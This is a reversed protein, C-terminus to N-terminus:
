RNSRLWGSRGGLAAGDAAYRQAYVGYGSGDQRYSEWAVVFQGDRAMAVTPQEQNAFTYTNVRFEEGLRTGDGAYRQGYIGWSSGDQNESMWTVVFNGTADMAIAPLMQEGGTYTNVQSEGGLPTGDPAYRRAYVGHQSGDQGYSHWSAVFRGDGAVAVRPEAQSSATCTNVQFEQGLPTGDAAYRRGFVGWHSGDQGDRVKEAPISSM